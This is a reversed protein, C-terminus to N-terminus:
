RESRGDVYKDLALAWQVEQVIEEISPAVKSYTVEHWVDLVKTEDVPDTVDVSHASTEQYGRDGLQTAIHSRVRSLLDVPDANPFDSSQSRATFTVTPQGDLQVRIGSDMIHLRVREAVQVEDDTSRYIEVNANTLATKLSGIDPSEM